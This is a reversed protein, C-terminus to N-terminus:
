PTRLVVPGLLGAPRLPADAKVPNDKLWTTRKDPPLAADGVLRNHWTSIVEIKLENRGRWLASGVDLAYPWTWLTPFVRGNLTVTALAEVRGLDLVAAPSPEACDFTMAYVARGAHFRIAPDAQESWSTLDAFTECRGGFDVQWPGDLPQGRRPIQVTAQRAPGEEFVVFVSGSPALAVSVAARGDVPEVAASEIKGSVPDWCAAARKGTRFFIKETRPQATQNSLFYIERGGASRHKWLMGEPVQVDPALGLQALAQEVTLDDRIKGSTRGWAAAALRRVADDCAPYNQLSPSRTPRPGIVLGGAAALSAVREAVAPRMAADPLVLLAYSTGDPLVFRGDKVRLRGMLVEANVYDYDYGAPLAKMTPGVMKPTDEGIYVLVDAVPNGAQLMVGCRRLYDIWSGASEFWTNHRNFETGFWANVGPKRDERPQHIYVHLMFRNIGQCFAWDGRAKLERPTNQFTLGRATFAEAWVTRLGYIHAASAASRVEADGLSDGLWFEGGVADSRGGYKLFESPFGFHGYNELWLNLGQEQCFDRLAGVYDDAVRDAVRRRLDWLFRDSLEAGGVVRGSFVPLFPLPDYGYCTRFDDRFGDTWNQLGTEYSDAVVTKWAKRERPPLRRLLEGVYADFHHRLHARNMKDVEFGVAGPLPPKNRTGTPTMASTQIIWDGAPVQWDLRGDADVRGSLDAVADPRVVLEPSESEPSPRWTYAEFPPVAGEYSKALTKGATDAVRAAAGLRVIEFAKATSFSSDKASFTLRFVRATTAPFSVTVPALSDPGLGLKVSTRKVPFAAIRRFAQGDDSAELVASADVVAAPRLTLSRATFPAEDEFRLVRPERAVIRAVAEDGAPAPFAVVAVRRVHEGAPMPVQDRFRAPGRVRTEAQVLYRMAEEPKVWPGGSQSWGPCNFVGIDVGVRGGERVAHVLNDWWPDTLPAPSSVQKGGYGILGISAGGIGVRKMAELDRTIGERSAVGDIWYWYCHPKTEVPPERFARELDDGALLVCPLVALFLMMRKM